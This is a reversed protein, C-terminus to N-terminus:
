KLSHTSERVILDPVMKRHIARATKEELSANIAEVVITAAAAGMQEMPQRVTTLAPSYLAAPAVDDFGIVSCQEPVRVGAKALARIAGFATMDDFAMLATFPRRRHLLEQTLKFGDEFSSFPDRSEPLDVILKADLVLNHERALARVGRWRPETDSLQRPGRIFAIKRHGLSHLHELAARAGLANDVIVSSINDNKLECGVIATPINSKEIDALVNIDLFLWNALVVLGEVRRDLLMELYREFRSRENHVDTLIPLFSSEYLANEMGRLVLTCYPDTMDFVMVGVTHSRRSRLSRAFLNPRYGLQSAARQIRAKTTDPIYRALPANNLVISVTASSFGSREAVDRITVAAPQTRKRAPEPRHSAASHAAKSSKSDASRM